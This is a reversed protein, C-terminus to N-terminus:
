EAVLEDLARGTEQSVQALASQTVRQIMEETPWWVHTRETATGSVVRDHGRVRLVLEIRVAVDWYLLTAPTTIRFERIGCLVVRPAATGHRAFAEEARAQVIRRILEQEPPKLAVRGLPMGGLTTREQHTAKRIDTVEVTVARSNQTNSTALPATDINVVLEESACGALLAFLWFAAYGAYKRNM